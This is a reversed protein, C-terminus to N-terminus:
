HANWIAPARTCSELDPDIQLEWKPPWAEEQARDGDALLLLFAGLSSGAAWQPTKFERDHDFFYVAPVGEGASLDLGYLSGCGDSFIPVAGAPMLMTLPFALPRWGAHDSWVPVISRFDGVRAIRERYFQQLDDPVDQGLQQQAYTILRDPDIPPSRVLLGRQELRQAAESVEIKM